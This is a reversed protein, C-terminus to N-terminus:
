DGEPVRRRVVLARAGDPTPALVLTASRRGNPKLRRRLVAPDVDLGRVKIEITGIGNDRVWARLTRGDFPMAELVEFATAFPTPVLDDAVLYAIRPAVARADLQHALVAVAGSRIVAPDPEYLYRAVPGVQPEASVGAELEDGSPLLLATRSGPAGVGSWLSTEVLDGRHSVWVAAIDAPIFSSPLGPAAKLCGLRGTLLGTAFDWPPSLDEVRWTRGSATRRAPDLFVAAGDALLAPALETADGVLVPRGLNAEALVATAPDAEVAVVDLGVDLFALADAGIGCGLDVVRTAGSAAFREARWRAVAARTAQELADPTFFLRSAREGFKGVAKRRLAVQTLAAAAHEPVTLRRLREAAGLSDPDTEAAAADLVPRADASVLWAALEPNV